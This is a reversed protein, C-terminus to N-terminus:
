FSNAIYTPATGRLAKYAFLLTKYNMKDQVPLWHLERRAPTALGRRPFGVLESCKLQACGKGLFVM